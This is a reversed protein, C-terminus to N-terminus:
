LVPVMNQIITMSFFSATALWNSKLHVWSFESPVERHHYNWCNQECKWCLLSFHPGALWLKVIWWLLSWVNQWVTGGADKLSVILLRFWYILSPNIVVNLINKLYRSNRQSCKQHSRSLCSSLCVSLVDFIGQTTQWTKVM